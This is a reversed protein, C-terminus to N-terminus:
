CSGGGVAIPRQSGDLTACLTLPAAVAALRQTGVQIERTACGRVEVAIPASAGPLRISAGSGCLDLGGSGNRQLLDRMQAVALAQLNGDRQNALTRAVGLTLGLCVLSMLVAGILADILVDGRQRRREACPSPLTAREM